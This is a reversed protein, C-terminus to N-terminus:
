LLELRIKPDGQRQECATEQHVKVSILEVEVLLQSDYLRRFDASTTQNFEM